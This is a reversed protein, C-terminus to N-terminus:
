RAHRWLARVGARQLTRARSVVAPSPASARVRLCQTGGILTSPLASRVCEAGRVRVCQAARVEDADLLEGGGYADILLLQGPPQDHDAAAEGGCPTAPTLLVYRGEELQIAALRVGLREAVQCCHALAARWRTPKHNPAVPSSTSLGSRPAAPRLDHARRGCWWWTHARRSLKSASRCTSSPSRPPAAWGGSWCRRFTRTGATGRLARLRQTSHAPHHLQPVASAGLYASFPRGGM